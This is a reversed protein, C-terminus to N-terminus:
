LNFIKYTAQKKKYSPQTPPQQFGGKLIRPENSEFKACFININLNTFTMILGSFFGLFGTDINLPFNLIEFEQLM